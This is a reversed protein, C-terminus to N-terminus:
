HPRGARSVPVQRGVGYVAEWVFVGGWGVEGALVAQELQETASGGPLIMGYRM